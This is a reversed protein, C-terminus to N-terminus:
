KVVKIVRTMSMATFGPVAPAYEQLTFTGSKAGPKLVARIQAADGNYRFSVSNVSSSKNIASLRAEHGANTDLNQTNNFTKWMGSVVKPGGGTWMPGVLVQQQVPAPTPANATNQTVSVWDSWGLANAASVSFTYTSGASLSGVNANTAQVTIQGSTPGAWKVIYGSVASGGSSSPANWNLSVTNTSVGTVKLSQPKSPAGSPKAAAISVKQSARGVTNAGGLLQQSAYTTVTFSGNATPTWNM